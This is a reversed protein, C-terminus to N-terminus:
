QLPFLDFDLERAAWFTLQQQGLQLLLLATGNEDKKKAFVSNASEEVEFKKQFLLLSFFFHSGFQLVWSERVAGDEEEEARTM